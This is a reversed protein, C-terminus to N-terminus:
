SGASCNEQYTLENQAVFIFTSCIFEELILQNYNCLRALDLTTSLCTDPINLSIKLDISRYECIAILYFSKLRCWSAAYAQTFNLKEQFFENWFGPDVVLLPM